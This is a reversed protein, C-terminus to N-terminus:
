EVTMNINLKDFMDDVNEANTLIDIVKTMTYHEWDCRVDLDDADKDSVVLWMTISVTHPM